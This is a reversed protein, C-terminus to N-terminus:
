IIGKVRAFVTCGLGFLGAAFWYVLPESTVLPIVNTTLISVIDGIATTLTAGM